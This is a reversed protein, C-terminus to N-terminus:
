GGEWNSWSILAGGGDFHLVAFSSSYGLGMPNGIGGGRRVQIARAAGPIREDLDADEYSVQARSLIEEFNELDSAM